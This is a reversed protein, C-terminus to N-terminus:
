PARKTAYLPIFGSTEAIQQGKPGLIFIILSKIYHLM